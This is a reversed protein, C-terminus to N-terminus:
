SEQQVPTAPGQGIVKNMRELVSVIHPKKDEPVTVLNAEPLEELVHLIKELTHKKMQRCIAGDWIPLIKKDPHAAQLQHVLGMETAILFIAGPPAEAVTRVMMGTSGVMDAAEQVDKPCEPHAIAISDPYQEKMLSLQALDFQNHVYCSGRPEIDIIEVDTHMRVHEALNADPGFLVSEVGLSEVVEVASGSTCIVDTESKTEATTNVYVIVPVGPYEAKKARIKEGDVYAALPCLAGPDPIYVPVGNSLVATMEAMFRVGSFIIIEYGSVESSLRALQLSDGTFDAIQQIDLTQYNHALILANREKKLELIRTQLESCDESM